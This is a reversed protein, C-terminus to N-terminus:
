SAGILGSPARPPLVRRAFAEDRKSKEQFSQYRKKAEGNFFWRLLDYGEPSKYLTIAIGRQEFHVISLIFYAKNGHDSESLRHLASQINEQGWRWERSEPIIREPKGKVVWPRWWRAPKSPVAPIKREPTIEEWGGVHILKNGGSDLIRVTAQHRVYGFFQHVREKRTFLNTRIETRTVREDIQEPYGSLIDKEIERACVSKVIKPNAYQVLWPFEEFFAKVKTVPM